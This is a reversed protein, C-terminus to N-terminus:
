PDPRGKWFTVSSSPVRFYASTGNPGIIERNNTFGLVFSDDIFGAYNLTMDKDFWQTEGTLRQAEVLAKIKIFNVADCPQRRPEKVQIPSIKPIHIACRRVAANRPILVYAYDRYPKLTNSKAAFFEESSNEPDLKLLTEPDVSLSVGSNSTAQIRKTVVILTKEDEDIPQMPHIPKSLDVKRASQLMDIIPRATDSISADQIPHTGMDLISPEDTIISSFKKKLSAIMMDIRRPQLGFVTVTLGFFTGLLILLTAHSWSSFRRPTGTSPSVTHQPSPNPTVVPPQEARVRSTAVLTGNIAVHLFSPNTDLDSLIATGGSDLHEVGLRELTVGKSTIHVTPGTGALGQLHTSRGKGRLTIPKDITLNIRYEGPELDLTAGPSLARIQNQLDNATSM